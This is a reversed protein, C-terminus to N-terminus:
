LSLASSASATLDSLSVQWGPQDAQYTLFKRLSETDPVQPVPGLTSEPQELMVCTHLWIVYM